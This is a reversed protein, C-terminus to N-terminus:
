NFDLTLPESQGKEVMTKVTSKYVSAKQCLYSNRDIESNLIEIAEQQTLYSNAVYGGVAFSIARLPPHGYSNIKSIATHVMKKIVEVKKDKYIRIGQVKPKPPEPIFIETFTSPNERFLINSDRSYFLPLVCNKPASDFGNYIDFYEILANYHQKFKDISDVIPIKVICRVGLKSSSLWACYIFDFTKFLHEKLEQAFEYSELKDFDLTALGTFSKIGKYNRYDCIIAPTFFYLMQKYKARNKEDKIKSYFEIKELVEVMKPKPNKVANVFSELSVLGLPKVQKIDAGYYNFLTQNIM